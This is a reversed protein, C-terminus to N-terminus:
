LLVGHHNNHVLCQLILVLDLSLLVHRELVVMVEKVMVLVVLVVLVAAAEAAKDQLVVAMM